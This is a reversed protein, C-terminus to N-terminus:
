MIIESEPVGYYRQIETVAEEYGYCVVAKYGVRNFYDLWDRQDETPKNKHDPRKMEIYMGHYGNMPVPLCLDSVGPKVGEAKLRLAETKSRKGGNPIHYIRDADPLRWKQYNCFAVVAQQELSESGIKRKM